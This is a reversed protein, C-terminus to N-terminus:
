QVTLRAKGRQLSRLRRRARGSYADIEDVHTYFDFAVCPINRTLSFISIKSFYM